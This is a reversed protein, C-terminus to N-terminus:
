FTSPRSIFYLSATLTGGQCNRQTHGRDLRAAASVCIYYKDWRFLHVNGTPMTYEQYLMLFEPNIKEYYQYQVQIRHLWFRQM